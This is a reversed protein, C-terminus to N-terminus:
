FRSVAERQEENTCWWYAEATIKPNAHGAQRSVGSLNAGNELLRSIYTHRLTHPHIPHSLGARESIRAFSRRVSSAALPEGKSTVFVLDSETQRLALWRDIAEKLEARKKDDGPMMATRIGSQTKSTRVRLTGNDFDMDDLTLALAEGIRLGTYDLLRVLAYTRTGSVSRRNIAKYFADLESQKRAKPETDLTRRKKPEPERKEPEM